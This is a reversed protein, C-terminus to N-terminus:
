SGPPPPSTRVQASTWTTGTFTSWATTIYSFRACFAQTNDPWPAGLNPWWDAGASGLYRASSTDDPGHPDDKVLRAQFSTFVGGVDSPDISARGDAPWFHFWQGEQMKVAVGGDPETRLDASSSENTFGGTGQPEPYDAGTPTTSAQVEVWRRQHRSWLYLRVNRVEVRTNTASSGQAAEYIVGWATVASTDPSPLPSDLEPGNYFSYSPPVGHPHGQNPDLMDSVVKDVWASGGASAHSGAAQVANQPNAQGAVQSARCGVLPMIAFLLPWLRSGKAHTNGM